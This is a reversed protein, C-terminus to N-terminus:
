ACCSNSEILELEELANDHIILVEDYELNLEKAIQTFDKYLLYRQELVFEYEYVELQLIYEIAKEKVSILKDLEKDLEKELLAIKDSIHEIRKTNNAITPIASGYVSSINELLDKMSQIVEFKSTICKDMAKIDELLLM